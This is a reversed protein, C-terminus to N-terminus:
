TLRACALKMSNEFPIHLKKFKEELFNNYNGTKKCSIDLKTIISLMKFIHFNKFDSFGEKRM